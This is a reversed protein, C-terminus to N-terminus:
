GAHGDHDKLRVKTNLRPTAEAGGHGKEGSGDALKM